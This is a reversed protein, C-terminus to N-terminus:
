VCIPLLRVSVSSFFVGAPSPTDNKIILGVHNSLINQEIWRCCRVLQQQRSWNTEVVAVLVFSLVFFFFFSHFHLIRVIAFIAFFLKCFRRTICTRFVYEFGFFSHFLLLLLLESYFVFYFNASFLGGMLLINIQYKDHHM